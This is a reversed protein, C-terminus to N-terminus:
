GYYQDKKQGQVFAYFMLGFVAAIPFVMWMDNLFVLMDIATQNTTHSISWNLLYDQSAYQLPIFLLAILMLGVIIEIAVTMSM